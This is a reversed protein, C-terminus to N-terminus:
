HGGLAENIAALVFPEMVAYGAKNPHLGDNTYAATLGGDSDKMLNIDRSSLSVSYKSCKGLFNVSPGSFGNGAVDMYISYEANKSGGAWSICLAEDGSRSADLSLEVSDSSLTMDVPKLTTGLGDCACSMLALGFVSLLLTSKLKM